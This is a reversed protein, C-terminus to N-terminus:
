GADGIKEFPEVMGVDEQDDCAGVGRERHQQQGGPWRVGQQPDDPGTRDDSDGEAYQPHSGGSPQVDGDVHCEAPDRDDVQRLEQM